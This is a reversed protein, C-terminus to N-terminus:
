TRQRAPARRAKDVTGSGKEPLVFPIDEGEIHVVRLVVQHLTRALRDCRAIFQLIPTRSQEVDDRSRCSGM